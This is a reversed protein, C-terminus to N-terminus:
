NPLSFGRRLDEPTTNPDVEMVISIRRNLENKPSEEDLPKRDAYGAVRSFRSAPIKQDLLTQYAVLARRTSLDWEDWDPATNQFTANGTAVGELYIHRVAEWDTPLMSRICSM